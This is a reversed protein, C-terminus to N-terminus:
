GRGLPMELFEELCAQARQNYGPAYQRYAEIIAAREELARRAYGAITWGDEPQSVVLMRRLYEHDEFYYTNPGFLCPAGVSLSELPLMPACEALTVNLNLHMRALEQPMKAQPVAHEVSGWDNQTVVGLLTAVEQARPSAGQLHVVATDLLRAAALMAYPPKHWAYDPLGWICLHPGGPLPTSPENPIRRVLNMVFGTPVGTCAMIEAMGKKVFGWKKIHGARCMQEVASFGRWAYEDKFHLYNGHWIVYIPIRPATRRLGGVLFHYTLPFGQIVVAPCGAAALVHALHLGRTEDLDDSVLYIEDFLQSAASYIGRWDPHNISVPQPHASLHEVWAQEAVNLAEVKVTVPVSSTDVPQRPEPVTGPPAVSLHAPAVGPPPAQSPSESRGAVVRVGVRWLVSLWRLQRLHNILRYSRSAQIAQMEARLVALDALQALQANTFTQEFQTSAPDAENVRTHRSFLQTALGQPDHRSLVFSGFPRDMYDQFLAQRQLGFARFDNSSWESRHREFPNLYIEAQPWEAGLPVNVLVYDSCDVAWSLLELARQKDFHELVDGFIIINWAQGLSPLLEAFDGIHIKNYFASHYSAINPEFAEVGEIVVQWDKPFVRGYWVDCFERVVMGWRGFGIGV